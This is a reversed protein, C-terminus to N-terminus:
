SVYGMGTYVLGTRQSFSQHNWNAGGGHGPISLIPVDWHADYLCGKTYNPVARNPDGPIATGLPQDVICTETWAGQRPLPQTPWSAQRADQK